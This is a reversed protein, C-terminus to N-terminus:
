RFNSLNSSNEAKEEYRNVSYNGQVKVEMKEANSGFKKNEFGGKSLSLATKPKLILEVHDVSNEQGLRFPKIPRCAQFM